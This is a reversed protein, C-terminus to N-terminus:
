HDCGALAEPNPKLLGFSKFLKKNVKPMLDIYLINIRKGSM